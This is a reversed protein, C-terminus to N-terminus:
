NGDDRVVEMYTVNNLNVLVKYHFNAFDTLNPKEDLEKIFNGEVTFVCGDVIHIKTVERSEESNM